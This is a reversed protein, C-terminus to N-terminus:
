SRDNLMLGELSGDMNDWTALNRGPNYSFFIGNYIYIIYLIGNVNEKDLWRDISM